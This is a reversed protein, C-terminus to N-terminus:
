FYNTRLQKASINFHNKFDCSFRGLHSFGQEKAIIGIAKDEKNSNIIKRFASNLRVYHLYQTITLGFYSNFSLQLSRIGVSFQQCLLELTIKQDFFSHIYEQVGKALIKSKKTKQSFIMQKYDQSSKLVDILQVLVNNSYEILCPSHETNEARVIETIINRYKSIANADISFFSMDDFHRHTPSVSKSMADFRSQPILISDSGAMGQTIIDVECQSSLVMLTNQTKQNGSFNITGEDIRPFVLCVTDAPSVLSTAVATSFRDSFLSIDGVTKEAIECKFDGQGIQIMPQNIEISQMFLEISQANDFAHSNIGKIEKAFRQYAM